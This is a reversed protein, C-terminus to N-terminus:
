DGNHLHELLFQKCDIFVYMNIEFYCLMADIQKTYILCIPGRFSVFTTLQM